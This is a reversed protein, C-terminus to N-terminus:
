GNFLETQNSNIIQDIEKVDNHLSKLHTLLRENAM